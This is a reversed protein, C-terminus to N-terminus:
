EQRLAIMPDVRSARRAPAYCALLASTLLVAGVSLSVPMNIAGIAFLTRQMARGLAYAGVVGLALGGVALTLGERLVQRRVTRQDPDAYPM